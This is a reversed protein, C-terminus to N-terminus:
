RTGAWYGHFLTWNASFLCERALTDQTNAGIPVSATGSEGHTKEPEDKSQM